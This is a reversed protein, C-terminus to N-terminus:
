QVTGLFCTEDIQGDCDNDIGDCAEVAGPHIAADDDNCDFEDAGAQLIDALAATGQPLAQAIQRERQNWFKCLDAFDM